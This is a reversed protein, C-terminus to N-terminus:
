NANQIIMVPVQEAGIKKAALARNRGEQSFEGKAGMYGSYDLTLMPFKTGSAMLDAYKDVLEQEVGSMVQSRTYGHASFGQIAREMYEDPHMYDIHWVKKKARKFYEPDAMMDNYTPMGTDSTTFYEKSEQLDELLM